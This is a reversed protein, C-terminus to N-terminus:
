TGAELIGETNEHKRQNNKALGALNHGLDAL